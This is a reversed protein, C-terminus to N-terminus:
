LSNYDFVYVHLTRFGYRPCVTGVIVRNAHCVSVSRALGSVIKTAIALSLQGGAAGLMDAVNVGQITEYVFLTHDGAPIDAVLRPVGANSAFLHENLRLADGTSHAHAYAVVPADTKSDSATYWSFSEAERFAADTFGAAELATLDDM